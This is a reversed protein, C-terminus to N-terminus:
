SVRVGRADLYPELVREALLGLCSLNPFGPGQSMAAFGPLHLRPVLGEVSLDHGIRNALTAPDGPLSTPEVLGLVTAPDFGMAEVIYDYEVAVEAEGADLVACLQGQEVAIGALHGIRLDVNWASDLARKAAVSFSGRDAHRIIEVKAVDSLEQWGAATSFYMVERWHESRTFLM